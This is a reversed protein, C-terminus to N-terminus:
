EEIKMSEVVRRNDERVQNLDFMLQENTEQSRSLNHELQSTRTHFEANESEITKLKQALYRKIIEDNGKM